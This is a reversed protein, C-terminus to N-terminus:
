ADLIDIQLEVQRHARARTREPPTALLMADILIPSVLAAVADHMTQLSVGAAEFARRFPANLGEIYRLQLEDHAEHAEDPGAFGALARLFQAVPRDRIRDCLVDVATHLDEALDGALPLEPDGSVEVLAKLLHRPTPWHRYVTSRSVGSAQHVRQASLSTLGETLLLELASTLVTAETEPTPGPPRGAGTMAAIM